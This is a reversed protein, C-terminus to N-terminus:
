GVVNTNVKENKEKWAVYCIVNPPTQTLSLQELIIQGVPPNLFSQNQWFTLNVQGVVCKGMDRRGWVKIMSVNELYLIDIMEKFRKAIYGLTGLTDSTRRFPIQASTRLM